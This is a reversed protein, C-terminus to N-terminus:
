DFLDGFVKEMFAIGQKTDGYIFGIIFGFVKILIGVVKNITPEEITAPSYSARFQILFGGCNAPLKFAATAAYTNGVIESGAVPCAECYWGNFQQGSPAIVEPLVVFYGGKMTDPSQPVMYYTGTVDKGAKWEFRSTEENYVQTEAKLSGGNLNFALVAQDPKCPAGQSGNKGWWDHYAIGPTVVPGTTEEAFSSVSLAGFLMLVALFVSLVKKM